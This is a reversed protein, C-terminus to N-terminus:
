LYMGFLYLLGCILLLSPGWAFMSFGSFVFGTFGIRGLVVIAAASLLTTGIAKTFQVGSRGSFFFAFLLGLLPNVSAATLALMWKSLALIGILLWFGILVPKAWLGFLEPCYRGSLFCVMWYLALAASVSILRFFFWNLFKKGKPMLDETLNVFFALCFMRLFEASLSDAPLGTLPLLAFGERSIRAFPLPPLLTRLGPIKVPFVATILYLFVVAIFGSVAKVAGSGRGFILRLMGGLISAAVAMLVLGAFTGESFFSGAPVLSQVTTM